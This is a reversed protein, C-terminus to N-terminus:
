AQAKPNYAWVAPIETVRVRPKPASWHELPPRYTACSTPARDHDGNMAKERVTNHGVLTAVNVAVNTAEVERFLKAVNLASGGCNGAVITTVGMRVFNEARPMQAVDDAHTHVDIFGPAVVLGKADVETKGNGAIKGIAAIRGDKVAVDGFYAPNGTGDAIRGNRIVLDYSQARALLPLLVALGALVIGCRFRM